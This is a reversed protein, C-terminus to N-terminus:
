KRALVDFVTPSQKGFTPEVYEGSSDYTYKISTIMAKKSLGFLSSSIKVTDGLGFDVGLKYLNDQTNLQGTLSLVKQQEALKNNARVRLAQRYDDDNMTVNDNTRQIDKADVYLEKRDIGTLWQNGIIGQLDQNVNDYELRFRDAGEGEGMTVAYNKYDAIGSEFGPKLLNEFDTSIEVISSLDRGSVLDLTNGIAGPTAHELVGFNSAVMLESAEKLVTGYSNQYTIKNKSFQQINGLKLYDFRRAEPATDTLHNALVDGVINEPFDYKFYNTDIIRDTAKGFLSRCSVALEKNSLDSVKENTVFYFVGNVKLLTEPTYLKANELTYPVVLELKNADQFNDDIILSKFTDVVKTFQFVFGKNKLRSYVEFELVM